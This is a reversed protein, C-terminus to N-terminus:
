NETWYIQLDLSFGAFNGPDNNLERPESLALVTAVRFPRYAAFRAGLVAGPSLQVGAPPHAYALNVVDQALGEAANWQPQEALETPAVWCRLDFVPQRFPVDRDPSGGLVGNVVVFGDSRMQATTVAPLVWDVGVPAALVSRLWTRAVLRNTPAYRM